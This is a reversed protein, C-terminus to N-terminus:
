VKTELALHAIRGMEDVLVHASSDHRQALLSVQALANRLRDIEGAYQQQLETTGCCDTVVFEQAKAYMELDKLAFKYAHGYYLMPGNPNLVALTEPDLVAGKKIVHVEVVISDDTVETIRTHVSLLSESRRLADFQEEPTPMLAKEKKKRKLNSSERGEVL